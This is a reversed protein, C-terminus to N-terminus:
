GKRDDALAQLARDSELADMFVTERFRSEIMPVSLPGAELGAQIWERDMLMRAPVDSGQVVGLIM